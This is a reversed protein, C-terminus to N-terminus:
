PSFMQSIATARFFVGYHPGYLKPGGALKIKFGMQTTSDIHDKKMYHGVIPKKWYFGGLFIRSIEWELVSPTSRFGSYHTLYLNTILGLISRGSSDLWSPEVAYNTGAMYAGGTGERYINILQQVMVNEFYELLLVIMKFYCFYWLLFQFLFFVLLQM